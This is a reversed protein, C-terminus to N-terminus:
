VNEDRMIEKIVKDIAKMIHELWVRENVLNWTSILNEVKNKLIEYDYTIAAGSPEQGQVALEVKGEKTTKKIELSKILKRADQYAKFGNGTSNSQQSNKINNELEKTIPSSKIGKLKELASETNGDQVDKIISTVNILGGKAGLVQKLGEQKLSWTAFRGYESQNETPRNLSEKYSNFVKRSKLTDGVYTSCVIKVFRSLDIGPNYIYRVQGNIKIAFICNNFFKVAKQYNEDFQEDPGISLRLRVRNNDVTCVNSEISHTYDSTKRYKELNVKFIEKLTEETGKPFVPPREEEPINLNLKQETAPLTEEIKSLLIAKFEELSNMVPKEVSTMVDTRLKNILKEISPPNKMEAKMKVDFM